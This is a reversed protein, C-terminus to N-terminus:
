VLMKKEDISDIQSADFITNYTSSKIEKNNHEALVLISM